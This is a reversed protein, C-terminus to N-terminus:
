PRQRRVQFMLYRLRERTSTFDAFLALTEFDIRRDTRLHAVDLIARGIAPPPEDAGAISHALWQAFRVIKTMKFEDTLAQLHALDLAPNESIVAVDLLSSAQRHGPPSFLLHGAAHLLRGELSLADTGLKQTPEARDYLLDSNRPGFRFPRHHLDIEIHNKDVFTREVLLESPQNEKVDSWGRSAFIDCAQDFDHPRVLLDVDSTQRLAATPHDLEGTALGKTVRCDIGVDLLLAVAATCSAQIALSRLASRRTLQRLEDLVEPSCTVLSNSAAHEIAPGIRHRRIANRCHQWTADDLIVPPAPQNTSQLASRIAAGVLEQFGEPPEHEIYDIAPQVATGKM